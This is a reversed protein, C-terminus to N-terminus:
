SGDESNTNEVVKLLRYDIWRTNEYRKYRNWKSIDMPLGDTRRILISGGMITGNIKQLETRRKLDKIKSLNINWHSKRIHLIEFKENKGINGAMGNYMLLENGTLKDFQKLTM